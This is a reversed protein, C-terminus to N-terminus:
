RRGPKKKKKTQNRSRKRNFMGSLDTDAHCWTWAGRGQKYLVYDYAGHLHGVSEIRDYTYGASWVTGPLAGKVARSSARKAEGVIEKIMPVADPLETVAHAHIKTVAVVIVRYGMARLKEIIARGIVARLSEDVHVETPCQQRRYRLLNAHEGPPPPNRYDGSSHIRHGRSRFGRESGHHWSGHTNIIIHRWVKAPRRPMPVIIRLLGSGICICNANTVFRM